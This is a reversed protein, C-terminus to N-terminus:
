PIFIKQIQINQMDMITEKWSKIYKLVQIVDEVIRVM